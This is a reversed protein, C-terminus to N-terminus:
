FPLPNQTVIGFRGPPWARLLARGVILQRELEGWTRSDSSHSRNDGLVFYEAPGLTVKMNPGTEHTPPLYPESLILGDSHVAHFILVKGNRLEITEGPLGIVRKIFFQRPDKPYHFIIPDGRQPNRFYYSLEDVILYERNYFNPEMSAGSVIFPQAVFMRIPVVVALSIFFVKLIEWGEGLIRSVRSQARSSTVNASTTEDM